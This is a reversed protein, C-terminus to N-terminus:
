SSRDEVGMFIVVLYSCLKSLLWVGFVLASGIIVFPWVASLVFLFTFYGKTEEWDKFFPKRTVVRACIPFLITAIGLISSIVVWYFEPYDYPSPLM